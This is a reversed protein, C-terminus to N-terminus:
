FVGPILRYRVRKSWRVWEEGFRQRLMADESIARAFSLVGTLILQLTWIGFVTRGIYTSLWGSSRMFSGPSAYILSIGFSAIWSAVYGPHRVINYPGATVLSHDKRLSLEHTFHRGMVHFCWLRGLCGLLVFITGLIFYTNPVMDPLEGSHVLISLIGTSVPSPFYAALIVAIEAVCPILGSLRQLIPFIVPCIREYLPGGSITEDDNPAPNPSIYANNFVFVSPVLFLLKMLTM